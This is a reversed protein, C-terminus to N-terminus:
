CDLGLSRQLNQRSIHVSGSRGVKSIVGAAVMDNIVRTLRERTCNLMSALVVHTPLRCSVIDESGGNWEPLSLLYMGLRHAVKSQGLRRVVDLTAQYRQLVTHFLKSQFQPHELSRNWVPQAIRLVKGATAMTVTELRAPQSLFGMAGFLEGEALHYLLTQNGDFGDVLVEAQGSLILYARGDFRDGEHFFCHQRKVSTVVAGPFDDPYFGLEHRDFKEGAM